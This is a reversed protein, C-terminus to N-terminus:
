PSRRSSRSSTPTSCSVSWIRAAPADSPRDVLTSERGARWGRGIRDACQSGGVYRGGPKLRGCHDSADIVLKDAIFRDGNGIAEGLDAHGGAVVRLLPRTGDASWGHSYLWQLQDHYRTVAALAETTGGGTSAADTAHESPPTAVDTCAIM